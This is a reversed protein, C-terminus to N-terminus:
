QIPLGKIFKERFALLLELDEPHIVNDEIMVDSLLRGDYNGAIFKSIFPSVVEKNTHPDYEYAITHTAKLVTQYREDQLWKYKECGCSDYSTM